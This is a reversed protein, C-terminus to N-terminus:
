NHDFNTLCLRLQFLYVIVYVWLVYLLKNIAFNVCDYLLEYKLVWFWNEMEASSVACM